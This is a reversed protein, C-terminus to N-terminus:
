AWSKAYRLKWPARLWPWGSGQRRTGRRRLHKRRSQERLDAQWPSSVHNPPIHNCWLPRDLTSLYVFYCIISCTKIHDLSWSIVFISSYLIYVCVSLIGIHNLLSAVRTSYVSITLYHLSGVNLLDVHNLSSSIYITEYVYMYIYIYIYM